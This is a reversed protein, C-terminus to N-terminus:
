AVLEPEKATSKKLANGEEVGLDNLSKDIQELVKSFDNILKAIDAEVAVVEENANNEKLHKAAAKAQSIAFEYNKSVQAREKTIRLRIEDFISKVETGITSDLALKMESQVKAIEGTMEQGVEEIDQQHQKMTANAEKLFFQPVDFKIEKTEMTIVPKDFVVEVRKSTFKPIDTKFEVRKMYTEPVDAYICTWETYVKLGKVKVEPKKAICKTEMRIAPVDFSITKIEMKVEPVDFKITEREMTFKPLDLKFSTTKMKVDFIMNVLLEGSSPKEFDDNIDDIKESGEEQIKQIKQEYHSKVEDIKQQIRVDNETSM